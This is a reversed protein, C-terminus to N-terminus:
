IYKLILIMQTNKLYKTHIKKATGVIKRWLNSIYKWYCLFEETFSTLLKHLIKKLLEELYTGKFERFLAALFQM